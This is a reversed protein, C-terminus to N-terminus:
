AHSKDKSVNRSWSYLATVLMAAGLGFYVYETWTPGPPEQELILVEVVIYGSMLIGAVMTAVLGIKDSRFITVAAVLSTIGVVILLLAPVTYSQFPTNHLWELPFEDLGTLMAVGGGIATLAMFGTVIVILIRVLWDVRASLHKM